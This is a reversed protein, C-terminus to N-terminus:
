DVRHRMLEERWLSEQEELKDAWEGLGTSEQLLKTLTTDVDTFLEDLRRQYLKRFTDPGYQYGWKTETQESLMLAGDARIAISQDETDALSLEQARVADLDVNMENVLALGNRAIGGFLDGVTTPESSASM